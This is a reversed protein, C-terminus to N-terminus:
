HSSNLRTSKRDPKVIQDGLLDAMADPAAAAYPRATVNSFVQATPRPSVKALTRKLFQRWQPAVPAMLSSHFACSTNLIRAPMGKRGAAEEVRAIVEVPGAVVLQRDSNINVIELSGGVGDCLAEVAERSGALAIMGGPAKQGAEALLTGRELSLKILLREDLLGAGCLAPFEGYSHGAHFQARVGLAELSLRLATEIVGLALQANRTDRLREEAERGPTTYILALLSEDSVMGYLSDLRLLHDEFEPLALRLGGLMNVTQSGQGPYLFAISPLSDLTQYYIGGSDNFGAASDLMAEARELKAKLDATGSYAFSLRVGDAPSPRPQSGSRAARVMSALEAKSGAKWCLLSRRM